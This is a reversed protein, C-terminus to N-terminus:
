VFAPLFQELAALTARRTVASQSARARMLVDAGIVLVSAAAATIWLALYAGLQEAPQPLLWAQVGATAVGALGSFGVTLSRYGRFTETRALHARIESVQLLAQRVDM